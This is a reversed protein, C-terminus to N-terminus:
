KRGGAVPFAGASGDFVAGVGDVEAELTEVGAHARFVERLVIQGREHLKKVM